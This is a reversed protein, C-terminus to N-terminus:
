CKTVMKRFPTKFNRFEQGELDKQSIIINNKDINWDIALEPDDFKVTHEFEPAYYQSCKYLLEVKKTITKFGHLFGKPIYIQKGNKASLEISFWQGFSPSSERIDVVVDLVAGVGVRVLKDQAHPPSQFHLGRIINKSKSLSHNDQVFEVSLGMEFLSNKNYVETFFGREDYHRIPTIIKLDPISTSEIKLKM